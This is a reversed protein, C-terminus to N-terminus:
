LYLADGSTLEIWYEKEMQKQLDSSLHGGRPLRQVGWTGGTLLWSDVSAASKTSKLRSCSFESGEATRIRWSKHNFRWLLHRLLSRVLSRFLKQSPISGATFAKPHTEQKPHIRYKGTGISDIQKEQCINDDYWIMMGTSGRDAADQM